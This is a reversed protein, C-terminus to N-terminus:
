LPSPLPSYHPYIPDYYATHMSFHDFSLFSHNVVYFYIYFCLINGGVLEIILLDYKVGKDLLIGSHVCKTM